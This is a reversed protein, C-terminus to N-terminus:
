ANILIVLLTYSLTPSHVTSDRPKVRMLCLFHLACLFLTRLTLSLLFCSLLSPFLANEHSSVLLSERKGTRIPGM